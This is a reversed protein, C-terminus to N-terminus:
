ELTKDFIDNNKQISKTLVEIQERQRIGQILNQLFLISLIFITIFLGVQIVFSDRSTFTFIQVFMYFWLILVIIHATLIKINFLNHKSIAYMVFLLFFSYVINDAGAFVFISLMPLLLSTVASLCLTIVSGILILRIQGSKKLELNAKLRKILVFLMLFSFLLYYIGYAVLGWGVSGNILTSSGILGYSKIYFNPIFPSIFFFFSLCYVIFIYSYKIKTETIQLIWILGTAIVLSGLSYTSELWIISLSTTTMYNSFAWIAALFCVCSFIKHNLNKPDQFLVFLGIMINLFVISLIISSVLM